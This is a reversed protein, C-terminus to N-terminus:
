NTAEFYINTKELFIGMFSYMLKRLIGILKSGFYM